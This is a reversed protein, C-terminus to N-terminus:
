SPALWESLVALWESLVAPLAYYQQFGLVRWCLSGSTTNKLSGTLSTGAELMQQSGILHVGSGAGPM